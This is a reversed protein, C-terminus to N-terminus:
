RASYNSGRNEKWKEPTLSAPPLSRLFRIGYHWPPLDLAPGQVALLGTQHAWDMIQGPRPRIEMAPGRPTTPDHRWHIVHVFGTPRVVRAAESLL